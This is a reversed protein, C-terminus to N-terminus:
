VHIRHKEMICKSKKEREDRHTRKKSEVNVLAILRILEHHAPWGMLFEDYTHPPDPRGVVKVFQFIKM